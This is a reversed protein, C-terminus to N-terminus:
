EDRPSKTFTIKGFLGMLIAMSVADLQTISISFPPLPNCPFVIAIPCCYHSPLEVVSSIKQLERNM